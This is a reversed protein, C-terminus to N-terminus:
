RQLLRSLIFYFFYRLSEPAVSGTSTNTLAIVVLLIGFVLRIILVVLIIYSDLGTRVVTLLLSDSQYRHALRPGTFLGDTVLVTHLRPHHCSVLLYKHHRQSSRQTFTQTSKQGM